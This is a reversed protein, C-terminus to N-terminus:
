EFGSEPLLDYWSTLGQQSIEPENLAIKLMGIVPSGGSLFGKQTAVTVELETTMLEAASIIYEYTSDYVPNCNDKVVITKRKSEKSRGPLLYLKVYPDPISSPDKLPINMIKHVIVVLRQRQVSYRLTLQIRGRGAIGASSTMSPTRHLLGSTQESLDPSPSASTKSATLAVNVEENAVGSDTDNGYSHNSMRSDQKRLPPVPSVDSKSSTQRSLEEVTDGRETIATQAEDEMNPAKKLIRLALTMTLKSEPGSKQLQFPQSVIEMGSKELLASLIYTFRGLEKDTKQDVIRLQLTDNDPNAVLFTFGQEWIPADTRMQVPTQQTQKGVSLVMYPDPKSQPRALPLHTASDIFVTLLATSMSSVRLLQTEELASQLDNPNATLNMWTLRIHVMGHKADELTLWTDVLGRKVANSIEITARGLPDHEGTRDWDFLKIGLLTLHSVDVCAECWYDWKPNVNNDITQTKFQQAGVTVIAYPDSKGKGLVSIDKKMLNKAEVVHIRLVGEPEPMKLDHAAVADSLTIPLKNPLVMVAGIQEVIIKRLMDSLGPMDLLDVIGVLNFDVNPNNLFFIQLGGVLPMKAILPKMIVRVMGQIQFHKLGGRVGALQFNIDCDSTYSLDLDMIIENRAVNKDYVKIGGIRPPVQGLIIRDFKFGNLKYGALAKAVNPEIVDRVLDKAFHNANPWVQHLIRNVWECREVDPFYVWAPLDTIKALIVDRESSIASLISIDRKLQSSKKWQERTVSFMIPTILWAMSWGMYGVFYIAGVIAVKKLVSYVISFVNDDSSAPKSVDSKSNEPQSALEKSAVTMTDPNLLPDSSSSM